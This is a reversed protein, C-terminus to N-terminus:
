VKDVIAAFELEDYVRMSRTRVNGQQALKLLLASGTQEDPADFILTGDVEGISWYMSIVQGGAAEVAARFKKARAPSNKIEAAGQQTYSILSLYRIM